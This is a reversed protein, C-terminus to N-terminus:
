MGKCVLGSLESIIQLVWFYKEITKQRVANRLIDINNMAHM